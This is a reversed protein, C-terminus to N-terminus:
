WDLGLCCCIIAYIIVKMVCNVILKYNTLKIGIENIIEYNSLVKDQEEKTLRGEEEMYEKALPKAKTMADMELYSRIIYYCFSLMTLLFLHLMGNQNLRLLSLICICLFYIFYLNSYFFNFLLTRKNQISHLCEHAITQIRTFTERVNAILITNNLVLYLSATNNESEKITVKENDLKKLIAKCVEKNEPLKDTIKNLEKDYGIEKLKKIDKLQIHWAFKLLILFVMCIIIVVIYEM